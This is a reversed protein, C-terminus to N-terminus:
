AHSPVDTGSLDNVFVYSRIAVFFGLITPIGFDFISTDYYKDIYFYINTSDAEIALVAASATGASSGGKIIVGEPGVATTFNDLSNLFWSSPLYDYGHAFQYIPTRIKKVSTGNPNPPDVAFFLTIVQFSNKNTSDIKDFPYRTSFTVDTGLAGTLSSGPASVAIPGNDPNAM